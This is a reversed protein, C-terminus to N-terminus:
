HKFQIKDALVFIEDKYQWVVDIYFFIETNLNLCYWDLASIVM